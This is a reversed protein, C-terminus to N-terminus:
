GPHSTYKSKTESISKGNKEVRDDTDKTLGKNWPIQVGKKGKNWPQQVGKKGKNWPIYGEKMKKMKEKSKDSHSFGSMGEGGDTKNYLTGTNNDKRGYWRIYFRELALAGTETLNSEMIVILNENKPIYIGHSQHEKRLWARKGQGKGIYYSKGNESIYAYIYFGPPLNTSSYISMSASGFLTLTPLTPARPRCM